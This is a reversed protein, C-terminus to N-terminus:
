RAQPDTPVGPSPPSAVGFVERKEPVYETTLALMIAVLPDVRDRFQPNIADGLIGGLVQRDVSRPGAPPALATHEANGRLRPLDYPWDHIRVDDIAVADRKAAAAIAAFEELAHPTAKVVYLAVGKEACQRAVDECAAQTPPKPPADGILVVARRSREGWDWPNKKLADLLGEYVAEPPDGAGGGRADMLALAQQLENLKNTLPLTRTVFADGHDRYFTLGIRPNTSVLSTARLIHAVDSKFYNIVQWMSGTADIVFVVDLGRLDPTGIELEQKWQPAHRDIAIELDPAPVFHPKLTRWVEDPPKRIEKWEARNERWWRAYNEIAFKWMPHHGIDSREGAWPTDVGAKHLVYEARYANDTVSLQEFLFQLLDRSRWTKLTEALADLVPMDQAQRASTEAFTILWQKKAGSTPESAALMRLLGVRAQGRFAGTRVLPATADRWKKWQAEDLFQARALLCEWAVMRVAPTQDSQLSKLIRDTAVPGPLRSLSVLALGRDIWDKSQLLKEYTSALYAAVEAADDRPTTTPATTPTAARAPIALILLLLATARM